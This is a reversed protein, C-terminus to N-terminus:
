GNINDANKESVRNQRRYAILWNGAYGYNVGMITALKKISISPDKDIIGFAEKRKRKYCDVGGRSM